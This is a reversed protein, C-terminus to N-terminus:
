SLKRQHYAPVKLEQRYKAVTRRAIKIGQNKLIQVIASDKLRSGSKESNILDFILSKINETSIKEGQGTQLHTSFFRSMKFTGAPTQIYKSNVVRSVTSPNRGIKQAVQKLTLPKLLALDGEELFKKQVRLFCEAIKRITEERQSTAKILWLASEIKKQLYQKLEQDTTNSKLLKAYRSSIAIRPLWKTNVIIEFKGAVKEVIVDAVASIQNIHESRWFARGPKPELTTIEQVAKEIELLPTKLKKAILKLKRQALEVLYHQVIAGALSRNRKKAKLQILLCEKLNRAGVGLPDFNHIISLIKKAEPKTLIIQQSSKLKDLVQDLSIELYGNEDIYSILQKGLQLEKKKLHQLRLQQLLHEQLHPKKTILSQRYDQKDQLEQTSQDPSNYHLSDKYERNLVLFEKIRQEALSDENTKAAKTQELVPNAEIQAELYDKLELIPMQLIRISQRMQPTLALKQSLKQVQRIKM